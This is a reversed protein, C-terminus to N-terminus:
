WYTAETIIEEYPVGAALGRKRTQTTTKCNMGSYEYLTKEWYYPVAAFESTTNYDRLIEIVRGKDDYTRKTTLTYSGVKEDMTSELKPISILTGNKDFRLGDIEFFGSTLSEVQVKLMENEQKIAEFEEVSVFQAEEGPTLASIKEQLDKIDRKLSEIESVTVDPKPNIPTTQEKTCSVIPAILLLGIWIKKM